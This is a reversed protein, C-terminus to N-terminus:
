ARVSRFSPWTFLGIPISTFDKSVVYRILFSRWFLEEMVPVLLSAGALRVATMSWVAIGSGLLTPNFGKAEMGFSYDLFIWVVFVLLGTSVSIFSHGPRFLDGAKIESYSGRFFLLVAATAFVKVPYLFLSFTRDLQILGAKEIFGALEDFGIFVMFVIFPLIRPISDNKHTVAGAIERDVMFGTEEFRQFM